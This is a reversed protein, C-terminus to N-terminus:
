PQQRVRPGACHLSQDVGEGKRGPTVYTKVFGDMCVEGCGWVCFFGDM